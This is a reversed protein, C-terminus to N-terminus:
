YLSIPKNIMIQKSDQGFENKAVCEYAGYDEPQTDRINLINNKIEVRNSMPRGDVRRWEVTPRPLGAIVECRVSPYKRYLDIDNQSPSTIILPKEVLNVEVRIYKVHYDTESYYAKCVYDGRDKVKFNKIHLLSNESIHTEKDLDMGIKSWEFKMYNTFNLGCEITKNEGQNVFTTPVSLITLRSKALNSSRSTVKSEVKCYYDGASNLRIPNIEITENNGITEGSKIWTYKLIKPNTNLYNPKIRCKLEISDGEYLQPDKPEIEVQYIERNEEVELIVSDSKNQPYEYVVCKITGNQDKKVDNIKLVNFNAKFNFNKALSILKDNLFWEIEKNFFSSGILNCKIETSDGESLVIREKNIDVIFEEIKPMKKEVDFYKSKTEFKNSARCEYSGYIDNNKKDLIIEIHSNPFYRIVNKRSESQVKVWNLEPIPYGNKIFCEIIYQDKEEHFETYIEIPEYKEVIIEVYDSIQQSISNGFLNICSYRGSHIPQINMITMRSGDNSILHYESNLSGEVKFWNSPLVLESSKVLCDLTINDSQKLFIKRNKILKNSKIEIQVNEKKSDMVDINVKGINSKLNDQDFAQCSYLGSDQLSTITLSLSRQKNIILFNSERVLNGDKRWEFEVNSLDKNDPLSELYCFIEIKDGISPNSIKPYINIYLSKQKNMRIVATDEIFHGKKSIARCTLVGHLDQYAGMVYLKSGHAYLNRYSSIDKDNILWQINQILNQEKDFKPYTKCSIETKDNDKLEYYSKEFKVQIQNGNKSKITLNLTKTVHESSISCLYTGTSYFDFDRIQLLQDKRSIKKPWGQNDPKFWIIVM